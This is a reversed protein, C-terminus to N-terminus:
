FIDGSLISSRLLKKGSHCISRWSECPTDKARMELKQSIELSIIDNSRIAWVQFLVSSVGSNVSM